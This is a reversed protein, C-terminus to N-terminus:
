AASVSVALLAILSIVLPLWLKRTFSLKNMRAGRRLRHAPRGKGLPAGLQPLTRVRPLRRCYTHARLRSFRWAESFVASGARHM